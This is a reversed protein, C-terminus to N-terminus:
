IPQEKQKLLTRRHGLTLCSLFVCLVGAVSSLCLTIELLLTLYSAFRDKCGMATQGRQCSPNWQNSEGMVGCCQFKDELQNMLKAFNPDKPRESAYLSILDYSSQEVKGLYVGVAVGCGIMTASLVVLVFTYALLLVPQLSCIALLGFAILVTFILVLICYVLMFTPLNPYGDATYKHLFSIQQMSLISLGIGILLLIMSIAYLAIRMGRNKPQDENYTEIEIKTNKELEQFEFAKEDFM